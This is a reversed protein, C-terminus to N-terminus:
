GIAGRRCPLHRYLTSPSVNLREAVEAVYIGNGRLMARAATIDAENMAPPRGGIRGRAKAAELGAMTRERIIGREFEALQRGSVDARRQAQGCANM